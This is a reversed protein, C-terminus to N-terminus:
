NLETSIWTSAQGVHVQQLVHLKVLAGLRNVMAAAAKAHETFLHLVPEGQAQIPPQRQTLQLLEIHERAWARADILDVIAAPMVRVDGQHRCLLHLRGAPDLVLEIQPRRPCRAALAQGDALFKCLAPEDAAAAIAPAAVSATAVGTQVIPEAPVSQLLEAPEVRDREDADLFEARDREDGRLILEIQRWADAAAFSGLSLVNVPLMQKHWGILEIPMRLFNAAALNLKEALSRSQPEGSGMVMLGVRRVAHPDRGTSGALQKLLRYAAVAAADDTGCLLTWSALEAAIRLTQPTPPTPLKVLVVAVPAQGSGSLQRLLHGLAEADDAPPSTLRDTDDPGASVREIEVQDDDLHVIAVPGDRRALQHAYQTLWPGAFGPLNGLFVAEFRPPAAPDPATPPEVSEADPTYLRLPPPDHEGGADSIPDAGPGTKPSLRIPGPTRRPPDAAPQAVPQDPHQPVQEGPVTGTLFLDALADLMKQTHQEDM